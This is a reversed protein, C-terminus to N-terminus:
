LIHVQKAAPGKKGEGIEYEVECGEELSRYGKMEIESHHVFIDAGGDDPTIFGFGKKENFWKVKGTAMGVGTKLSNEHPSNCLLERKYQKTSNFTGQSNLPVEM